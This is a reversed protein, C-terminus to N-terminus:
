RGTPSRCASGPAARREHGPRRRDPLLARAVRDRHEEPIGPGEDDVALRHHAPTAPPGSRARAALGRRHVQDRQGAREDGGPPDDDPDAEVPSRGPLAVDLLSAASRPSCRSSSPSRRRWRAGPGPAAAGAPGPRKGVPVADPTRRRPPALRDAEELM